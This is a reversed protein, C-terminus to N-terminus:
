SELWSSALKGLDKLGPGMAFFHDTDDLVEFTVHDLDRVLAELEAPPSITDNEGVAIFIKGHFGRLPTADMMAPPPSVLLLRRVTTRAGAIAATAGGYSYGAAVLPPTVSEELFDLAATYDELADSVEGSPQGASGGVGRWDFRLSALGAKECAFAVETVVPSHMSGGYLPHPPAIVAGGTEPGIGARYLADLAWGERGPREPLAITAPREMGM